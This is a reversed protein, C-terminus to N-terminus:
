PHEAANSRCSLRKKVGMRAFSNASRAVLDGIERWSLPPLDQDVFIWAPDDGYESIAEDLLVGLNKPLPEGEVRTRFTEDSEAIKEM